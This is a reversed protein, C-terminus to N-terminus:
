DEVKSEWFITAFKQPNRRLLEDLFMRRDDTVGFGNQLVFELYDTPVSEIVKGKYKGWTMRAWERRQEECMPHHHNIGRCWPCRTQPVQSTLSELDQPMVESWWDVQQEETVSM